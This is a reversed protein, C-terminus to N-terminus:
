LHNTQLLKVTLINWKFTRMECSNVNLFTLAFSVDKEWQCQCWNLCVSAITYLQSCNCEIWRHIWRLAGSVQAYASFYAWKMMGKNCKWWEGNTTINWETKATILDHAVAVGITSTLCVSILIFISLFINRQLMFRRANHNCQRHISYAELKVTGNGDM